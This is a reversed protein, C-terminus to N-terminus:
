HPGDIELMSRRGKMSQNKLADGNALWFALKPGVFGAVAVGGKPTEARFGSQKGEVLM